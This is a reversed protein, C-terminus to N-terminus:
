TSVRTRASAIRCRGTNSFMAVVYYCWQDLIGIIGPLSHSGQVTFQSIPFHSTYVLGSNAWYRFFLCSSSQGLMPGVSAVVAHSHCGAKPRCQTLVPGISVATCVSYPGIDPRYQCVCKLYNPWHLFFRFALAPWCQGM